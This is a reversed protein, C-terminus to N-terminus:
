LRLMSMPPIHTRRIRSRISSASPRGDATGVTPRSAQHRNLGLGRPLAPSDDRGVVYRVADALDHQLDFAGLVRGGTRVDVDLQVDVALRLDTGVGDDPGLVASSSECEPHLKRGVGPATRLR